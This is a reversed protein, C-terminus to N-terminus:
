DVRGLYLYPLVRTVIRYRSVRRRYLSVLHGAPFPERVLLPAARRPDRPLLAKGAGVAAGRLGHGLVLGPRVRATTGLDLHPAYLALACRLHGEDEGGLLRFSKAEAVRQPLARFTRRVISRFSM